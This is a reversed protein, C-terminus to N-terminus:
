IRLGTNLSKRPELGMRIPMVHRHEIYPLKGGGPSERRISSSPYQLLHQGRIDSISETENLFLIHNGVLNKM